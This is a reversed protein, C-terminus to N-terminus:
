AVEERNTEGDIFVRARKVALNINSGIPADLEDYRERPLEVELPKGDAVDVLELRVTSSLKAVHEITATFAARAADDVIEFDHPRIFATGM